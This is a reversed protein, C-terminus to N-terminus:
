HERAMAQAVPNPLQTGYVTVIPNQRWPEKFYWLEVSELSREGRLDIVYNNGGPLIRDSIVLEQSSGDEFHIALRDFFLAEGSVRLQIARFPGDRRTIQIRGHDQRGDIQTHGLFDWFQGRASLSLAFALTLLGAVIHRVGKLM